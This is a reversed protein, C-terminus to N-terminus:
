KNKRLIPNLEEDNYMKMQKYTKMYKKGKSIEELLEDIALSLDERQQILVELKLSCKQKHDESADIRNAEISMHYIKLELISLRDLAWAPSETNITAGELINVNSFKELFYDDLLEVTDTREQNSADIKRKLTLAKKPEIEPDRIIDEYAWQVTDIWAKKYLLSEIYETVINFRNTFSQDIVGTKKFQRTAKNFVEIAKKSFM